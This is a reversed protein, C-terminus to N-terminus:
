IKIPLEEVLEMLTDLDGNGGLDNHYNSHMEHILAKDEVTIFGQNIEAKALCRIRDKLLTRQAKILSSIAEDTKTRWENDLADAAEAERNEVKHKQDLRKGLLVVAGNILASVVGGTIVALIIEMDTM